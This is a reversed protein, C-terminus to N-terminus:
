PRLHWQASRVVQLGAARLGEVLHAACMGDLYLEASRPLRGSQAILAQIVATLEDDPVEHHPPDFLM